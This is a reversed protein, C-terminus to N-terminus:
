SPFSFSFRHVNKKRLHLSASKQWKTNPIQSHAQTNDNRDHKVLHVIYLFLFLFAGLACVPVKEKECTKKKIIKVNNREGCM